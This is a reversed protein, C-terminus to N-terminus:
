RPAVEDPDPYTIKNTCQMHPVFKKAAAILLKLRSNNSLHLDDYLPFKLTHDDEYEKGGPNLCLVLLAGSYEGNNTSPRWETSKGNRPRIFYWEAFINLLSSIQKDKELPTLRCLVKLTSTNHADPQRLYTAAERYSDTKGAHVRTKKAEKRMQKDFIGGCARGLKTEPLTNDATDSDASCAATGLTLLLTCGLAAVRTPKTAMAKIAKRTATAM